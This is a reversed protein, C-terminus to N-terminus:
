VFIKRLQGRLCGPLVIELEAIMWDPGTVLARLMDWAQKRLKSLLSRILAFGKAGEITRFDGSITQRLKMMRGYQKALNNGFTVTPGTLVRLVDLRRIRLRLLLNHGIQRPM